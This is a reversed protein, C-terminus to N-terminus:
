QNFGKWNLTSVSRAHGQLASATRATAKQGADDDDLCLVTEKGAFLQAWEPKFTTASPLAVVYAGGTEVGADVLSIADSEGETVYVRQCRKLSLLFGRWLSPAGGYLWLTRKQEGVRWRLKACTEYLFAAKGEHWGLAAELALARITEPKWGRAKAWRECLAQDTALTESMRRLSALTDASVTTDVRAPQAPIKRPQFLRSEVFTSFGARQELLRKADVFGLGRREKLYDFADGAQGCGFCRWGGDPFVFFSASHEHHFPCLGVLRSGSRKLETGDEALLAPLDATAKLQELATMDRASM